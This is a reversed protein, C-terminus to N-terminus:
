SFFKRKLSQDITSHADLGSKTKAEILAYTLKKEISRVWLIHHKNESGVALRNNM